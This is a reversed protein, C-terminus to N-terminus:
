VPQAERVTSMVQTSHGRTMRDGIHEKYPKGLANTLRGSTNDTWLIIGPLDLNWSMHIEAVQIITTIVKFCIALHTSWRNMVTETDMALLKQM